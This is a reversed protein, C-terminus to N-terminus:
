DCCLREAAPSIAPTGSPHQHAREARRGGFAHINRTGAVPEGGHWVGKPIFYEAGANVPLHKGDIILTNCGHVVMFYEDYDHVHPTSSHYANAPRRYGRIREAMARTRM